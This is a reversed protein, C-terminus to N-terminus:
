LNPCSFGRNEINKSHIILIGDLTEDYGQAVHGTLKQYPASDNLNFILLALGIFAGLMGQVFVSLPGRYSSFLRTYGGPRIVM